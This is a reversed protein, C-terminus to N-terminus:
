FWSNKRPRARAEAQRFAKRLELWGPAFPIAAGYRDRAEEWRGLKVLIDGQSKLPDAWRPGQRHAKVFMRYARSFEGRKQLTLGWRQYAFPLSPALAVARAFVADAAASNGMAAVGEAAYALCNPNPPLVRFLSGAKEGEGVLAYAHALHCPGYDFQFQFEKSNQWLEYFRELPAISRHPTGSELNYLGQILLRAPQLSADNTDAMDLYKHAQAWDHRNAEAEALLTASLVGFSGGGGTARADQALNDIQGTWDQVLLQYNFWGLATPKNDAPAAAAARILEQGVRWAAESGELRRTASVLANWARWITPDQTVSLRLKNRAEAVRQQQSLMLGWYMLLEPATEESAKAFAATVFQEGEPYRKKQYLYNAFLRPESAGYVYEAATSSLRPLDEESGSFSKPPIATGRVTLTVTQDKNQVLSGGIYTERGLGRRLIRDLEGVSVGAQPLQVAIDGTWANDIARRLATTRVAGQITTLGDQLGAAIVNGSLGRSALAPPATFEEVVVGDASSATMIMSVVGVAVAVGVGVTLRKLLVTVAENRVQLNRYQLDADVLKAQKALLLRASSDPAPDDREIDLAIDVPCMTSPTPAPKRRGLVRWFRGVRHARTGAPVEEM